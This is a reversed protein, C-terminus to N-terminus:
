CKSLNEQRIHFVLNMLRRGHLVERKHIVLTKFSKLYVSGDAPLFTPLSPIKYHAIDKDKKHM